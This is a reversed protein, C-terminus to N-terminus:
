VEPWADALDRKIMHRAIRREDDRRHLTVLGYGWEIPTITKQSDDAAVGTWVGITKSRGRRPFMSTIVPPTVPMFMTASVGAFQWAAIMIESPTALGAAAGAVGFLISGAFGTAGRHSSLVMFTETTVQALRGPM